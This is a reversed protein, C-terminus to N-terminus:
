KIIRLTHGYAHLMPMIQSSTEFILKQTRSWVPQALFQPASSLFDPKQHAIHHKQPMCMNSFSQLGFGQIQVYFVSTLSTICHNLTVCTHKNM